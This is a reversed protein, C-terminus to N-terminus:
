LVDNSDNLTESHSINNPAKTKKRVCVRRLGRWLADAERWREGEEAAKAESEYFLYIDSKKLM